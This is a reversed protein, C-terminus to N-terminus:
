MSTSDTQRTGNVTFRVQKAKTKRMFIPSRYILVTFRSGHVTFRQGRESQKQSAYRYAGCRQRTENENRMFILSRYSSLAKLCFHIKQLYYFTLM